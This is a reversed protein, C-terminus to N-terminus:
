DVYKRMESDRVENLQNSYIDNDLQSAYQLEDNIHVSVAQDNTSETLFNPDNDTLEQTLKRAVKSKYSNVKDMDWDEEKLLAFYIRTQDDSKRISYKGNGYTRYALTSASRGRNAIHKKFDPHTIPETIDIVEGPVANEILKRLGPHVEAKKGRKAEKVMDEYTIQEM